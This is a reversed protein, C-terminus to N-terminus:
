SLFVFLSEITGTWPIRTKPLIYCVMLLYPLLPKNLLCSCGLQFGLFGHLLISTDVHTYLGLAIVPPPPICLCSSWKPKTAPQWAELHTLSQRLSVFCLAVPFVCVWHRCGRAMEVHTCQYRTGGCVHVHVCLPFLFWKQVWWLWKYSWDTYKCSIM